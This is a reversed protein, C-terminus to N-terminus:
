THIGSRPVKDPTSRVVATLIAQETLLIALQRVVDLMDYRLLMTSRIINVVEGESTVAAIEAFARIQCTDIRHTTLHHGEKMGPAVLPALVEHEATHPNLSQRRDAPRSYM